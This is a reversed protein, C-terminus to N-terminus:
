IVFGARRTKGGNINKTQGWKINRTKTAVSDGMDEEDRHRDEWECDYDSYWYFEEGYSIPYGRHPFHRTPQPPPRGTVDVCGLSLTGVNSQLFTYKIEAETEAARTLSSPPDFWRRPTVPLICKFSELSGGTLKAITKYSATPLWCDLLELQEISSKKTEIETSKQSRPPRRPEQPKTAGALKLVKLNPLALIKAINEIPWSNMHRQHICCGHSFERINLLGPPLNDPNFARYVWLPYGPPKSGSGLQKGPKYSREPDWEYYTGACVNYIERVDKGSYGYPDYIIEASANGLDLSELNPTLCLLLPLLAESDLGDEIASYVGELGWYECIDYIKILEDQTWDWKWTWTNDDRRERRHWAVSIKKFREGIQPNILLCRILKWASQTFYDVRFTYHLKINLSIINTFRICTKSCSALDIPTLIKNEFIQILIEAPLTALSAM